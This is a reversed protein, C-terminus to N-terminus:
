HATIVLQPPHKTCAKVSGLCSDSTTHHLVICRGARRVHVGSVVGPRSTVAL